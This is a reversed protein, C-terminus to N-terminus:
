SLVDVHVQLTATDTKKRICFENDIMFSNGNIHHEQIIPNNQTGQSVEHKYPSNYFM